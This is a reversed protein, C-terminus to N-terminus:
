RPSFFPVSDFMMKLTESNGTKEWCTRSSTRILIGSGNVDSESAETHFVAIRSGCPPREVGFADSRQEIRASCKYWVRIGNQIGKIDKRKVREEKLAAITEHHRRAEDRRLSGCQIKHEARHAM